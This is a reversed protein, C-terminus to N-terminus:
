AADRGCECCVQAVIVDSWGGEGGERWVESEGRAWVWRALAQVDGEGRLRGSV